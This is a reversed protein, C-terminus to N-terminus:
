NSQLDKGANVLFFRESGDRRRTAPLPQDSARRCSFGHHHVYIENGMTKSFWPCCFEFRRAVSNVGVPLLIKLMPCRSKSYCVVHKKDFFPCRSQNRIVSM